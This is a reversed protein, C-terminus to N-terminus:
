IRAEIALQSLRWWGSLRFGSDARRLLVAEVPLAVALSTSSSGCGCCRASLLYWGLNMETQDSDLEEDEEDEMGGVVGPTGGLSADWGGGCGGWGACRLSLVLNTDTQDSEVEEAPVGTDHREVM